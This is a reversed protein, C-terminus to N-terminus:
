EAAFLQGSFNDVFFRARKLFERKKLEKLCHGARHTSLHCASVYEHIM